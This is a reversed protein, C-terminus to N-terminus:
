FFLNMNNITHKTHHFSLPFLFVFGIFSNSNFNNLELKNILKRLKREDRKRKKLDFLGYLNYDLKMIKSVGRM